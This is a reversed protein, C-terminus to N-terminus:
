KMYQFMKPNKLIKFFNKAMFGMMMLGIQMNNGYFFTPYNLPRFIEFYKTLTEADMTIPYMMMKAVQNVATEIDKNIFHSVNNLSEKSFDNRDFAKKLEKGAYIGNALSNINGLQAGAVWTDGIAVAGDVANDKCLDRVRLRTGKQTIFKLSDPNNGFYKKVRSDSEIFVKLYHDMPKKLSYYKTNSYLVLSMEVNNAIGIGAVAPPFDEDLKLDGMVFSYGSKLGQPKEFVFTQYQVYGQANKNVPIKAKESLNALIGDATVVVKSHVNTGDLLIGGVIKGDDYIFDKVKTNYFLHAGSNQAEDALQHVLADKSAVYGTMGKKFTDDFCYGDPGDATLWEMKSHIFDDKLKFEIEPFELFGETKKMTTAGPFSFLIGGDAHHSVNRNPLREFVATNLGERACSIAAGLGAPGAGVIIVDYEPEITQNQETQIEDEKMNPLPAKKNFVANSECVDECGYCSMCRDHDAVYMKKNKGLALIMQPCTKICAKCGTCNESVTVIAM